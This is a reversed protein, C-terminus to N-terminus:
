IEEVAQQTNMRNVLADGIHHLDEMMRQSGFQKITNGVEYLQEELMGELKSHIDYKATLSQLKVLDLLEETLEYREQESGHELIHWYAWNSKFGEISTSEQLQAHLVECHSINELLESWGRAFSQKMMQTFPTFLQMKIQISQKLFDEATMKMQKTNLYLNMKLRNVECIAESLSQIIEVQGERALLQYFRGSFYDGALVRLQNSRTKAHNSMDNEIDVLDHTDMGLQVLSTVLSYLEDADETMETELAGHSVFVYLLKTRHEPFEPLETHEQILDYQIYQQAIQPFRVNKM